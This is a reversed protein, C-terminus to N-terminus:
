AVGLAKRGAPNVIDQVTGHLAYDNETRGQPFDPPPCGRLFLQLQEKIYEANQPCDPVAPIYMVSSDEKGIHEKEVAHVVDCQWFVMDGPHVAPVSVMTQELNMHPHTSDSFEFPRAAGSVGANAAQSVGHFKHDTLDFKWSEAALYAPDSPDVTPSFFPRLMIYSTSLLIDPFVKLTGERPATDSLALWGQFTRFISAQNPLGKTSIRAGIRGKLSYPNHRRWDGKLISEFCSRFKSDQWREISGGDIHPPHAGWAFGPQRIRFRDIYTLPTNLDVPENDSSHTYLNNCWTQTKLVNPHSRALIQPKTHFIQFYQPNNAPTGEVNSNNSVFKDLGSKWGVAEDRPVVNRVVFSGKRRLEALRDASLSTLESYEVIPLYDPGQEAIIKTVRAMEELIESWAQTAKSEFEPYSQAIEQKLQLFSDISM